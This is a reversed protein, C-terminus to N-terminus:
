SKLPSKHTKILLRNKKIAKVFKKVSKGFDEDECKGFFEAFAEDNANMYYYLEEVDFTRIMMLLAHSVRFSNDSEIAEVLRQHRSKAYPLFRIKFDSFYMSKTGKYPFVHVGLAKVLKTSIFRDNCLELKAIVCKNNYKCNQCLWRKRVPCVMEVEILTLQKGCSWCSELRKTITLERYSCHKAPSPFHSLYQRRWLEEDRTTHFWKKCAFAAIQEIEIPALYIFVELLLRRSAHSNTKVAKRLYVEPVKVQFQRNWANVKKRATAIQAGSLREECKINHDFELPLNEWPEFCKLHFYRNYRTCVCLDECFIPQKCESCSRSPEDQVTVAYSILAKPLTESTM